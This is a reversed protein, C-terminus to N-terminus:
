EPRSQDVVVALGTGDCGPSMMAHDDRVAQMASRDAKAEPLEVVGKRHCSPCLWPLQTTM